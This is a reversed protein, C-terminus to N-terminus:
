VQALTIGSAGHIIDWHHQKHCSNCLEITHELPNNPDYKIHHLSTRKCNIGKVAGCISCKGTRPTKSDIIRHGNFSVRKSSLIPNYIPNWIYYKFCKDCYIYGDHYHWCEIGKKNIWTTTSDCAACIKL